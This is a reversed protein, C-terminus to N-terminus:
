DFGARPDEVKTAAVAFQERVELRVLIDAAIAQVDVRLLDVGADARPHVDYFVVQVIAQRPKRIRTEIHHHHRLGQLGDPSGVLQQALHSRIPPSHM